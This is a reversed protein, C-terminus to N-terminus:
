GNEISGTWGNLFHITSRATDFHNVRQLVNARIGLDASSTARGLSKGQPSIEEGRLYLPFPSM